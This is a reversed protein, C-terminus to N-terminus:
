LAQEERELLVLNPLVRDGFIRKARAEVDPWRVRRAQAPAPPTDAEELAHVAEFFKRREGAPLDSVQKLLEAASMHELMRQNRCTELWQSGRRNQFHRTLFWDALRVAPRQNRRPLRLFGDFHDELQAIDDRNGGCPTVRRAFTTLGSRANPDM